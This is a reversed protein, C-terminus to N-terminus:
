QQFTTPADVSREELMPQDVFEACQNMRCDITQGPNPADDVVVAFLAFARAGALRKAQDIALRKFAAHDPQAM